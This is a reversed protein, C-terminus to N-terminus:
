CILDASDEVFNAEFNSLNLETCRNNSKLFFRNNEIFIVFYDVLFEM